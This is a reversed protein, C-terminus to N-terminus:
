KLGCPRLEMWESIECAVPFVIGLICKTKYCRHGTVLGLLLHRQVGGGCGGYFFLFCMHVLKGGALM